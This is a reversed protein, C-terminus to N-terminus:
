CREYKWNRRKGEALWEIATTIRKTRTADQKADAIWDVYERRAGPPFGDFTAKAAPNTALAAAFAPNIEATQAPPAKPVRKTSKGVRDAADAILRDLESTPPLDNLSKLTGFQGMAGVTDHSSLIEKGRWFNLAAHNKFAGMVILISGSKSFAPMRWKISEEADPVVAHVRDRIHDLIPRAFPAAAAIFEDVRPDRTM